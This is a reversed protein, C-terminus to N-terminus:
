AWFNASTQTQKLTSSFNINSIVSFWTWYSLTSSNINSIESIQTQKLVTKHFNTSIWIHLWKFPMAHKTANIFQAWYLFCHMRNWDSSLKIQQKIMSKIMPQNACQNTLQNIQQIAWQNCFFSRWYCWLTSFIWWQLEIRQKWHEIFIKFHLWNQKHLKAFFQTQYLTQSSALCKAM